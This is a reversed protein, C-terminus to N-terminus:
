FGGLFSKIPSKEGVKIDVAPVVDMGYNNPKLHRKPRNMYQERAIKTKINSMDM